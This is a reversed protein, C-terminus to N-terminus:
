QEYGESHPLDGRLRHRDDQHCGQVEEPVLEPREAASVARLRARLRPREREPRAPREAPWTVVRRRRAPPWPCWPGARRRRPPASRGGTRCPGRRSPASGSSGPWPRSRRSPCAPGHVDKGPLRALDRGAADVVRRACHELRPRPRLDCPLHGAAPRAREAALLDVGVGDPEGEAGREQEAQDVPAADERHPRTSTRASSDNETERHNKLWPFM